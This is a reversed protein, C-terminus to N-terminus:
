SLARLQDLLEEDTFRRSRGLIIGRATYFLEPRCAADFAGDCRVWMDPPNAVRQRRSSSPGDTTSTTASTSKM